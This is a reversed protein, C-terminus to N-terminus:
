DGGLFWSLSKGTGTILDKDVDKKIGDIKGHETYAIAAYGQAKYFEKLEEPTQKGDSLTSHSHMNIKYFNGTEPLLYRRM